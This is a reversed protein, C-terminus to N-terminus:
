GVTVTITMYRCVCVYSAETRSIAYNVAQFRAERLPEVRMHGFTLHM